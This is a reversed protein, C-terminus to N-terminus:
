QNSDKKSLILNKPFKIKILNSMFNIKREYRPYYENSSFYIISSDKELSQFANPCGKPILVAYNINKTLKISINKKYTLSNKRLDLIHVICKGSTCFVVKIEEEPKIQYHFGRLVNKKKFHCFNIQKIDIKKKKFINESFIKIFIGRKDLFKNLKLKYCNKIKTNIYKM